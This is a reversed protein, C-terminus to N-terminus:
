SAEAKVKKALKFAQMMKPDSKILNKMADKALEKEAGTNVDDMLNALLQDDLTRMMWRALGEIFAEDEAAKMAVYSVLTTGAGIIITAIWGAAPIVALFRSAISATVAGSAVGAFFQVFANAVTNALHTRAKKVEPDKVNGDAADLATAYEEGVEIVRQGLLGLGVLNGLATTKLFRRFLNKIKGGKPKNDAPKDAAPATPKDAVPAKPKDAAPAKPKNAIQKKLKDRHENADAEANPGDFRQLVKGNQDVVNFTKNGKPDLIGPKIDVSKPLSSNGPRSLTPGSSVPGRMNGLSPEIRPRPAETIQHVKM